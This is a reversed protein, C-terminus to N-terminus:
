PVPKAPDSVYEEHGRGGSPRDFSLGLGPQLYLPRLKAECGDDCALPYKPLSRWQPTGTEFIFVPPIDAPPGGTKLHRDLFPKLV